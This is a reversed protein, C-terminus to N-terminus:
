ALALGIGDLVSFHDLTGAADNAISSLNIRQRVEASSIAFTKVSNEHCESSKAM